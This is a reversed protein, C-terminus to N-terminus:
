IIDVVQQVTGTITVSRCITNEALVDDVHNVLERLSIFCVVGCPYKDSRGSRNVIVLHCDLQNAASQLDRRIVCEKQLRIGRYEVTGPPIFLRQRLESGDFLAGRQERLVIM